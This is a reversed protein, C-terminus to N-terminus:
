PCPPPQDSVQPLGLISRPDRGHPDIPAGTALREAPRGLARHLRFQARDYDAIAAYYDNLAQQLAQIAAVVEQPRIVLIVVDGVRRTQTLGEFNKDASDLADKVGTEADAIRKASEQVQAHAQVVEAAIRDELQLLELLAVQNEARRDRTRAVNGAGLNQLEWVLQVDFDNRASFDAMQDNRGGGFTATSNRLLLSPILPRIREQRLRALTAQVFAQQAALEPRNTLAMPILIDLPQDAEVLTLKLHPPEVPELRALPDLRLLRALQASALRWKEQATSVAQRRRALEARARSAEVPLVLGPALKETRRVLEAARRVSDQAAAWEGRAQQVTFYADTVAVMVDNTATQVGLRRADTIQRAALPAYLADTFAFVATPGGGVLLSQKSTGLINGVVDQLQGDHRNYAVGVNLSPLWLSRAGLEQALAQQLRQQAIQIEFPQAQALALATPLTIPLPHDCPEALPLQVPGDAYSPRPPPEQAAAIGALGWAIGFAIWTLARM